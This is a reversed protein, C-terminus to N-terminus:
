VNYVWDVDEIGLSLLLYIEGELRFNLASPAYLHLQIKRKVEASSPLPHDVGRGPRNVLLCQVPPRTPGLAPRSSQPFDRFEIGRVV